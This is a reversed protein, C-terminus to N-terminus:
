IDHCVLKKVFLIKFPFNDIFFADSHRAMNPMPASETEVCVISDHAHESQEYRETDHQQVCCRVAACVPEFDTDESKAARLLRTCLEVM